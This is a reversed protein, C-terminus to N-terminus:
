TKMVYEELWASLDLKGERALRRLVPAVTNTLWHITNGSQAHSTVALKVPEPDGPWCPHAFGFIRGLDAAIGNLSEGQVIAAAAANAYDHKLQFEARLLGARPHPPKYRYIRVYRESSRSGLYVTEGTSSQFRSRTKVASKECSDEFETPTVDCAMDVAVDLRSFAGAWAECTSHWQAPTVSACHAGSVEITYHAALPHVYLTRTNDDSRRAFSYPARPKVIQWDLPNGFAEMFTPHRDLVDECASMYAAFVSPDNVDFYRRGVLSVWDIHAGM